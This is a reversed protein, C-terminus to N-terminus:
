LPLLAYLFCVLFYLFNLLMISITFNHLSAIPANRGKKISIIVLLFIHRFFPFHVYFNDQKSFLIEGFVPCVFFNSSFIGQIAYKFSNILKKSKVKFKRSKTSM